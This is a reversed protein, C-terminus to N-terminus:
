RLVCGSLESFCVICVLSRRLTQDTYSTHLVRKESIDPQKKPTFTRIIENNGRQQNERTTLNRRDPDVKNNGKFPNLPSTTKFSNRFWKDGLPSDPPDRRPKGRACEIKDGPGGSRMSHANKQRPLGHGSCAQCM